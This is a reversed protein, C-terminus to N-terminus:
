LLISIKAQAFLTDHALMVVKKRLRPRQEDVVVLDHEYNGAFLDQRDGRSRHVAFASRVRVSTADRGVIRVNTILHATRSRPVETWATGSVLQHVRARLGALDDAILALTAGPDGARDTAPVVYSGDPTWLALWEELKWEDLLAAEAYLFDEVDGRTLM